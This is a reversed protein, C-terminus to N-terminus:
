VVIVGQDSRSFIVRGDFLLTASDFTVGALTQYLSERVQSIATRDKWGMTTHDFTYQCSVPIGCAGIVAIRRAFMTSSVSDLYGSLDPSILNSETDWIEKAGVGAATAAARIRTCIGPIQRHDNGGVYLHVGLYDSMAKVTMSNITSTTNLMASFYTEAAGGAKTVWGTISPSIIKRGAVGATAAYVTAVIDALKAQTGSFFGSLNVENWVEFHKIRTGYRAVLAALFDGLSAMSAPEASLGPSGPGYAGVEAPRASAWTPSGFVTYIPTAGRAEVRELWSDLNAWSYTGSSPNLQSWRVGGDHSRVMPMAIGSPVTTELVAGAYLRNFHLSFVRPDFVFPAAQLSQVRGTPSALVRADPAALDAARIFCYSSGNFDAGVADAYYTSPTLVGNVLSASVTTM